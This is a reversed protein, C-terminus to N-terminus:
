KGYKHQKFVEKMRKKNKKYKESIDCIVIHKDQKITDINNLKLAILKEFCEVIDNIENEYDIALRLNHVLINRVKYVYKAISTEPFDIGIKEFFCKANQIFDLVIPSNTSIGNFVLEIKTIEETDSSICKRLDNKSIRRENFDKIHAYLSEEFAVEMFYELVQYLFIYRSFSNVYSYPLWKEYLNRLLKTLEKSRKIESITIKGKRNARILNNAYNSKYFIGIESAEILANIHYFGADYFKPYLSFVNSSDIQSHRYILAHCAPFDVDSLYCSNEKSCYNDKEKEILHSMFLSIGIHAYRNLWKDHQCIFSEDDEQLYSITILWGITGGNKAVVCFNDDEAMYYPSFFLEIGYESPDFTYEPFSSKWEFEQGNCVETWVKTDSDFEM